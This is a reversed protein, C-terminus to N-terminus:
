DLWRDILKTAGIQARARALRGALQAVPLINGGSTQGDIQSRLSMWKRWDGGGGGLHGAAAQL